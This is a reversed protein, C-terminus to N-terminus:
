RGYLNNEIIYKSIKKSLLKENLSNRFKKSSIKCEFDNIILINEKHQSLFQDDKIIQNINEDRSLVIIKYESLLNDSALWNKIEKLNDSGLLFCCNPYNLKKLIQYTGLFKESDIEISSYEVQLEEAMIKVMELRHHDDNVNKHAYNIGVPLFIFKDVKFTNIVEKCAQYHALTPPNFTGGYVVIM